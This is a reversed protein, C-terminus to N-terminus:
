TPYFNHLDRHDLDDFFYVDSPKLTSPANAKGEILVHRLNSWTKELGGNSHQYRIASEERLPHLRHVCEAILPAGLHEHIIDRIFELCQLNSNNSYIIVKAVKNSQQLCQLSKMIQLVGPRIIGLPKSSTEEHLVKKVFLQYANYLHKDLAASLTTTDIKEEKLSEKLRLSIICYYVSYLEAIAEDMDFVFYSM